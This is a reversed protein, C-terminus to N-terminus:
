FIEYTLCMLYVRGCTLCLLKIHSDYEYRPPSSEYSAKHRLDNEAFSGSIIPSKQPFHDVSILCDIVRRWGTALTHVYPNKHIHTYIHAKETCAAVHTHTLTHAHTHTHAYTNTHTHAHKHTDTDADIHTRTRGDTQTRAQTHTHTHTHSLCLLCTSM